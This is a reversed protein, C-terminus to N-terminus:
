VPKDLAPKRAICFHGLPAERVTDIPDVYYLILPLVIEFLGVSFLKLLQALPGLKRSWTNRSFTWYTFRRLQLALFWYYGGLPNMEEVAFGAKSLLYELGYSTYRFYDHPVQHEHWSQPASLILKGSPKLVRQIERLVGEPESVHELVQTCLAVDFTDDPFSLRELTNVASLGSYNWTSDGVALDVGVYRTHAFFHRYQGEGAGADLVLDNASIEAAAKAVLRRLQFSDVEVRVRLPLPLYRHWTM